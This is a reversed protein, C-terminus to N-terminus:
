TNEYNLFRTPFDSNPALLSLEILPADSERILGSISTRSSGDAM